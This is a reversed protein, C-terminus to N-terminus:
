RYRNKQETAIKDARDNGVNGSHGKVKKVVQSKYQFIEKWLDVHEPAKGDAKKWGKREWGAMWTNYGNCCYASDTYIVTNLNHKHAWKLAQTLAQLEMRGITTIANGDAIQGVFSGKEYVAVGWGGPGKGSNNLSSVAGDTYIEFDMYWDKFVKSEWELFDKEVQRSLTEAEKNQGALESFNM